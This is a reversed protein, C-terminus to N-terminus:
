GVRETTLYDSLAKLIGYTPNSQRGSRINAISAISVGTAESVKDLRRDKLGNTIEDLTLM